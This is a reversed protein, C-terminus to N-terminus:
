LGLIATALEPNHAGPSPITYMTADRYQCSNTADLNPQIVHTSAAFKGGYFSEFVTVKRAM